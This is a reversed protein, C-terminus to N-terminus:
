ASPAAYHVKAGPMGRAIAQYTSASTMLVANDPYNDKAVVAAATLNVKLTSPENFFDDDGLGENSNSSLGTSLLLHILKKYM